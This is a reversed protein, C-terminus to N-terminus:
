KDTWITDTPTERDTRRTDTPTEKDTKVGQETETTTEKDIERATETSRRGGTETPITNDFTERRDRHIISGKLCKCQRKNRSMYHVKAAFM